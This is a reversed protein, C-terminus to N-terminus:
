KVILSRARSTLASWSRTSESFSVASFSFRNPEEQQVLSRRSDFFIRTFRPRPSSSQRYFVAAAATPPSFSQPFSLLPLFPLETSPGLYLVSVVPCNRKEKCHLVCRM